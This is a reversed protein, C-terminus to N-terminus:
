VVQVAHISGDMIRRIITLVCRYVAHHFQLIHTSVLFDVEEQAKRM